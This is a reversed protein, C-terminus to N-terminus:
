QVKTGLTVEKEPHIFCPKNEEDDAVLIMGQSEQNMLKRPKINMLVPVQKGVLDQIEEVFEAMGALIQRKETGFDFIFKILKDSGEVKEASEIKGIRIDMRSFDEYTIENKQEKQEM